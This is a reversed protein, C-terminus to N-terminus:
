QNTKKKNKKLCFVAYSNRMLSQLESTHEESRIKIKRVSESPVEHTVVIGRHAKAHAVLWYDAVQLFTAIAAAEYNQGTAWTSVESLAPVVTDDPALFFDCGRAQGWGALDGGAGVRGDSGKEICGVM